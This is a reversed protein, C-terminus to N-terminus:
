TNGKGTIKNNCYKHKKQLEVPLSFIAVTELKHQIFWAYKAPVIRCVVNYHDITTISCIDSM